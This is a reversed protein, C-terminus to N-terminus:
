GDCHFHVSKLKQLRCALAHVAIQMNVHVFGSAFSQFREAIEYVIEAFFMERNLKTVHVAVIGGNLEAEIGDAFAPEPVNKFDVRDHVAIVTVVVSVAFPKGLEFAACDIDKGSVEDVKDNGQQPTWEAYSRVQGFGPVVVQEIRSEGYQFIGARNCRDAGSDGFDVPHFM